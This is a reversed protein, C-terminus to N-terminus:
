RRLLELARDVRVSSNPGGIWAISKPAVNVVGELSDALQHQSIKSGHQELIREVVLHESMIEGAVVSLNQDLVVM